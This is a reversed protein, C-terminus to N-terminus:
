SKLYFFEKTSKNVRITNPAPPPPPPVFNLSFHRHEGKIFCIERNSVAKTMISVLLKLEFYIFFNSKVLLISFVSVHHIGGRLVILTYKVGISNPNLCPPMKM